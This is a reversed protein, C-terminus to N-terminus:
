CFMACCNAPTLLIDVVVNSFDNRNGQTKINLSHVNHLPTRACHPFINPLAVSSAVLLQM